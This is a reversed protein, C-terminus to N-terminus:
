KHYKTGNMITFARYIQELLFVRAMEHTLTMKSLSLIEHAADRVASSLGLPGGTVFALHSHQMYLAELRSAFERSSFMRGTRDLAILAAQAPVRKLISEGELRIIEEDPRSKTAKEPKVVIWDTQTYPKLRALYFAEADRLFPARTRDVVVFSMKPM